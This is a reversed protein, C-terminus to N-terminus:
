VRIFLWILGMVFLLVLTGLFCVIAVRVSSSGREAVPDEDSQRVM